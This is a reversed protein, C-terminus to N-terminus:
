ITPLTGLIYLFAISLSIAFLAYLPSKFLRSKKFNFIKTAIDFTTFKDTLLVIIKMIEYFLIFIYLNKMFNNFSFDLFNINVSEYISSNLVFYAFIFLVYNITIVNEKKM